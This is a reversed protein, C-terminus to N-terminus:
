SSKRIDKSSFEESFAIAILLWGAITVAIMTHIGRALGGILAGFLYLFFVMM